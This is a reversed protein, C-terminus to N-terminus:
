FSDRYSHLCALVLERGPLTANWHLTRFTMECISSWPYGVLATSKTDTPPGRMLSPIMDRCDATIRSMRRHQTGRPFDNFEDVIRNIVDGPRSYKGNLTRNIYTRRAVLYGM